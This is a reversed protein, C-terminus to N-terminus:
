PQHQRRVLRQSNRHSHPLRLLPRRKRCIRTQHLRYRQTLLAHAFRVGCFTPVLSLSHWVDIVVDMIVKMVDEIDINSPNIVVAIYNDYLMKQQRQSQQRQTVTM